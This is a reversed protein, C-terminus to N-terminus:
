YAIYATASEHDADLDHLVLLGAGGGTGHAVLDDIEGELAAKEDEAAAFGADAETWGEDDVLVLGVDGEVDEFLADLECCFLECSSFVVPPSSVRDDGTRNKVNSRCLSQRSMDAM